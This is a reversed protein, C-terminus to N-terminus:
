AFVSKLSLSFSLQSTAAFSISYAPVFPLCASIVKNESCMNKLTVLAIMTLALVSAFELLIAM